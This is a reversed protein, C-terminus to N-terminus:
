KLLYFRYFNTNTVKDCTEPKSLNEVKLGSPKLEPEGLVVALSVALVILSFFKM